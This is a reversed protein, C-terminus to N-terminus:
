GWDKGKYFDIEISEAPSFEYGPGIIDGVIAGLM